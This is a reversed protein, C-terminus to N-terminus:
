TSSIQTTQIPLYVRMRWPMTAEMNVFICCKHQMTYQLQNNCEKINDFKQTVKANFCNSYRSSWGTSLLLSLDCKSFKMAILLFVSFTYYSHSFFKNEKWYECIYTFFHLFMTLYPFPLNFGKLVRQSIHHTKCRTICTVKRNMNPQQSFWTCVTMQLEHKM